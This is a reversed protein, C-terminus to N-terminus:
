GDPLVKRPILIKLHGPSGKVRHETGGEKILTIM